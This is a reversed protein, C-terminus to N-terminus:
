WFHGLAMGALGTLVAAIIIWVAKEWKEGPKKELKGIREGQEKALTLHKDEMKEMRKDMSTHLMEAKQAYLAVNTSLEHVSSVLGKTDKIDDKMSVIDSRMLTINEANHCVHDQQM